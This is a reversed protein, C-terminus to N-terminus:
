WRWTTSRRRASPSSSIAPTAARRAFRRRGVGVDVRGPQGAELAAHLARSGEARRGVVKVRGGFWAAIGAILGGGGVAVLVTDLSPCCGAEWELGVTGQGARDGASSPM